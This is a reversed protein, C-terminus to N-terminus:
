PSKLTQGNKHVAEMGQVVKVARSLDLNTESLLSRQIRESGLGFVLRDRLAQDFYEGFACTCAHRRLEAVYSTMSEGPTHVRRHFRYREAIVIPKPEFHGKFVVVTEEVRSSSYTICCGM